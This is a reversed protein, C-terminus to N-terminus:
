RLAAHRREERQLTVPQSALTRERIIAGDPFDIARVRMPPAGTLGHHKRLRVCVDYGAFTCWLGRAGAVLLRDLACDIRVAAASALSATARTAIAILLVGARQALRALRMWVTARLDPASLVLVLRCAQTRLLIDVARATGLPTRAPVVLVRDLRAGAHALSPPYLKGDDVIATLARRTVQAALRAAVSWRGASGELTVLSGRPFGGGLARDLAPIATPIVADPPLQRPAGTSLRSKLAAFADRRGLTDDQASSAIALATSPRAM